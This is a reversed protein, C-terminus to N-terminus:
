VRVQLSIHRARKSSGKALGGGLSKTPSSNGGDIPTNGGGLIGSAKMVLDIKSVGFLSGTNSPQSDLGGVPTSPHPLTAMSGARSPLGNVGGGVAAAAGLMADSLRERDGLHTAKAKTVDLAALAAAIQDTVSASGSSAAGSPLIDLGAMGKLQLTRWM